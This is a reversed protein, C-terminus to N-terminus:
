SFQKVLARRVRLGGVKLLLFELNRALSDMGSTGNTAGEQCHTCVAAAVWFSRMRHATRRKEGCAEHPHLSNVEGADHM